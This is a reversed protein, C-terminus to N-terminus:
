LSRDAALRARQAAREARRSMRSALAARRGRRQRAAEDLREALHVSNLDAYLHEM